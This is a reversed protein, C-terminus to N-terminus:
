RDVELAHLRGARLEYVRGLRKTLSRAHTVVVLAVGQERNLQCLLDTLEASNAEDLSGTPEDALLLDPRNILARVVAVRQREGGSLQAPRHSLREVLGVRELLDSARDRTEADARGRPGALTPLLVNELVSCQPLLHHDQFVLGVEQNRLTALEDADLAGLDRGRIVIRGSTAPVLGCILHLLTSKGSGSPGVVAASEGRDLDFEVGDLVRLAPQGMGVEYQKVLSTIQLAPAASSM